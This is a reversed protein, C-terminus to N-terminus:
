RGLAINRVGIVTQIAFRAACNRWRWNVVILMIDGLRSSTRNRGSRSISFSVDCLCTGNVIFHDRHRFIDIVIFDDSNFVRRSRAGEVVHMQRVINQGLRFRFHCRGDARVCVFYGLWVAAIGVTIWRPVRRHEVLRLSILSAGIVVCILRWRNIAIWRQRNLFHWGRLVCRGNILVVHCIRRWSWRLLLHRWATDRDIRWLILRRNIFRFRNIRSVLLIARWGGVAIGVVIPRNIMVWRVSMWRVSMWRM